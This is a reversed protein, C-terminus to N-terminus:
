PWFVNFLRESGVTMMLMLAFWRVKM